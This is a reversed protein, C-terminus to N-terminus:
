PKRRKFDGMWQAPDPYYATIVRINSDACDIGLLVHIIASTTKGYVLYSPLYKDDPNSEIIEFTDAASFIQDRIISRERMRMNVHYSWFVRRERMSCQIFALPDDPVRRETSM